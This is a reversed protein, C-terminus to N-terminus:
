SARGIKIINVVGSMGAGGYLSSFPGPVVEIQQIDDIPVVSMNVGGSFANNISIGDVLIGTRYYGPIGRLTIQNLYNSPREGGLGRIFVGPAGALAEEIRHVNKNEIQKATVVTVTAPAESAIKATKTATVVVDDLMEVNQDAYVAQSVALTIVSLAFVQSGRM